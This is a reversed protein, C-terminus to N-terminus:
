EAGGEQAESNARFIGILYCPVGIRPLLTIPCQNKSEFQHLRQM